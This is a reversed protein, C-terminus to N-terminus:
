PNIQPDTFYNGLWDKVLIWGTSYGKQPPSIAVSVWVQGKSDITLSSPQYQWTTKYMASNIFKYEKGPGSRVLLGGKYTISLSTSQSPIPTPTPFTVVVTPYPVVVAPVNIVQGIYILSPNSIQPNIALLDYVTVGYRGAIIGLTDGWQVVYTSGTVPAPPYYVPTYAYGSPINLIQGAYLWWGLGPNAARIADVTTGCTVALGSLTDGWQVIVQAPCNGWAMSKSPIAFTAFILIALVIIRSKNARM